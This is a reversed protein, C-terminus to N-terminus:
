RTTKQCACYGGQVAFARAAQRFCLTRSTMALSSRSERLTATIAAMLSEPYLEHGAIIGVDSPEGEVDEGGNGFMLPLHNGRPCAAKCAALARPTRSPRFASFSPAALWAAATSRAFWILSTRVSSAALPMDARCIAASSVVRPMAVGCPPRQCGCVTLRTISRTESYCSGLVACRVGGRWPCRVPASCGAPGARTRPSPPPASFWRACLPEYPWGDWDRRCKGSRVTM